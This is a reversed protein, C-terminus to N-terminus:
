KWISFRRDAFAKPLGRQIHAETAASRLGRVNRSITLKNGHSSAGSNAMLRCNTRAHVADVPVPTLRVKYTESTQAVGVHAAVAVCLIVAGIFM